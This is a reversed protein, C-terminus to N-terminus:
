SRWKGDRGRYGKVGAAKQDDRLETETQDVWYTVAERCCPNVVVCFKQGDKTTGTWKQQQGGCKKCTYPTRRGNKNTFSDYTIAPNLIIEWIASLAVGNDEAKKRLHPTIRFNSM